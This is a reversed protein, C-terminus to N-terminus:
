LLIEESSSEEAAVPLVADTMWCGREPGQSQRSLQFLYASRRGDPGVITVAQVATDDDRFVEGLEARAPDLLARYSPARVLERFRDIPGTSARNGPSAFRYALRIGADEPLEGNHALAELQIRVVQEPSLSPDPGYRPRGADSRECALAALATAALALLARHAARSVTRRARLAIPSTM